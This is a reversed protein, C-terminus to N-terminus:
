LAAQGRGGPVKGEELRRPAKLDLVPSGDLADLGTVTLSTGEVRVVEVLTAGIPNPRMPSRLGFVGRLPTTKDGRPHVRLRRRDGATLEHMWYFVEVRDGAEIGDLGRRYAAEIELVSKAESTRRVAGIPTITLSGAM